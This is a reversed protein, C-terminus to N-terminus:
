VRLAFREMKEQKDREARERGREERRGEEGREEGRKYRRHAQERQLTNIWCVVMSNTCCTTGDRRKQSSM